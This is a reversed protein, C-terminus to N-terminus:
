PHEAQPPPVCRTATARPVSELKRAEVHRKLWKQLPRVLPEDPDLGAGIHNNTDYGFYSAFNLQQTRGARSVALATIEEERPGPRTAFTQHKSAKLVPDDLLEQLQQLENENLSNEFARLRSKEGKSYTSKEMRFRGSSYVM